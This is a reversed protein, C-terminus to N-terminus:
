ISNRFALDNVIILDAIDEIDILDPSVLAYLNNMDKSAVGGNPIEIWCIHGLVELGPESNRVKHHLLIFDCFIGTFPLIRLYILLLNYYFHVSHVPISSYYLIICKLYISINHHRLYFRICIPTCITHM